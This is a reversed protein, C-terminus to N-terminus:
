FLNNRVFLVPNITLFWKNLLSFVKDKVTYEQLYKLRKLNNNIKQHIPKLDNHTYDILSHKLPILTEDVFRQIESEKTTIYGELDVYQLYLIFPERPLQQIDWLKELNGEVMQLLRKIERHPINSQNLSNLYNQKIQKYRLQYDNLEQRLSQYNRDIAWFGELREGYEKMTELLFRAQYYTDMFTERLQTNQISGLLVSNSEFFQFYNERVPMYSNLFETPLLSELEEGIIEDYRKNLICFEMKQNQIFARIQVTHSFKNILATLLSGSIGGFLLTIWDINLSQM